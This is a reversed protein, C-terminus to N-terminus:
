GKSVFGLFDAVPGERDYWNGRINQQRIARRLMFFDMPSAEVWGAVHLPDPNGFQLSALLADVGDENVFGIWVPYDSDAYESDVVVVVSRSPKSGVNQSDANATEREKVISM